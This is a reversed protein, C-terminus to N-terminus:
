CIRHKTAHPHLTRSSRTSRTPRMWITDAGEHLPRKQLAPKLERTSALAVGRRHGHRAACRSSAVHARRAAASSRRQRVHDPHGLAEGLAAGCGAGAVQSHASWLLPPRAAVARVLALRQEGGVRVPDPFPRYAAGPNRHRRCRHRIRCACSCALASEVNTEARM